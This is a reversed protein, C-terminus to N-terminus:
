LSLKAKKVTIHTAVTGGVEAFRWGGPNERAKAEATRTNVLLAPSIYAV